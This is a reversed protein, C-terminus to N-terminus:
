FKYTEKDVGSNTFSNGSKLGLNNVEAAYARSKKIM